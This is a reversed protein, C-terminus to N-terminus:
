SPHKSFSPRLLEFSGNRFSYVAPADEIFFGPTFSMSYAGAFRILVIDGECLEPEDKLICMRDSEMCTFGCLEQESMRRDSSTYLVYPYSTKKMEHDINLRSFESVVFRVGRVDKADVVRGVYFGPTCVVAGGPEVYLAVRSRDISSLEDAIAEAYEEYKGENRRGGGYFGGGMDIYALDDTMSFDNIIKAAHSALVRYTSALRGFTTVHMHLGCLTVGPIARISEIADGLGGDEYCFGFRGPESGGITQGPCFRELDINARIGVRLSTHGESSLEKLWRIERQSDINVISGNLVAHRFWERGKVPGNFIIEKPSFGREVALHYEEDSVVEAMCGCAKAEDLIWPFPNTKVSYGVRAHEGWSRKLAASFDLFNSELEKADFIFCPTELSSLQERTFM